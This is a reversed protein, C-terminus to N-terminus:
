LIQLGEQSRVRVEFLGPVPAPQVGEIKAGGLKPELARRIQAENAFASAAHLLLALLAAIRIM